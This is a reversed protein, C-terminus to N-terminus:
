IMRSEIDPKTPKTPSISFIPVLQYQAINIKIKLRLNLGPECAWAQEPKIINVGFKLFQVIGVM